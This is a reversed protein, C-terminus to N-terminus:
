YPALNQSTFLPKWEQPQQSIQLTSPSFEGNKVRLIEMWVHFRATTTWLFCVECNRHNLTEKFKKDPKWRLKTRRIYDTEKKGKCRRWSFLTAWPKWSQQSQPLLFRQIEGVLSRLNQKYTWLKMKQLIFFQVEDSTRMFSYTAVVAKPEIVPGPHPWKAVDRRPWSKRLMEKKSPNELSLKSHFTLVKALTKKTRIEHWKMAQPTVEDQSKLEYNSKLVSRRPFDFIQSQLPFCSSAVPKSSSSPHISAM